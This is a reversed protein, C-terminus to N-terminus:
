KLATKKKKEGSPDWPGLPDWPDPRHSSTISGVPATRGNVHRRENRFMIKIMKRSNETKRIRIYISSDELYAIPLDLFKSALIAVELELNSEIMGRM